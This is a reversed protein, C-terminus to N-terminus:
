ICSGSWFTFALRQIPANGHSAVLGDVVDSQGQLLIDLVDVREIAPGYNHLILSTPTNYVRIQYPDPPLTSLSASTLTTFNSLLDLGDTANIPITPLAALTLTCLQLLVALWLEGFHQM